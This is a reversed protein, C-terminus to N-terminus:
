YHVTIDSHWYVTSLLTYLHLLNLLLISMKIDLTSVFSMKKKPDKM